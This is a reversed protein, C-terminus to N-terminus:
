GNEYQGGFGASRKKGTILVWDELETQQIDTLGAAYADVVEDAQDRLVNVKTDALGEGIQALIKGIQDPM